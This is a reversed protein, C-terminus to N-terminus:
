PTIEDERRRGERATIALALAVAKAHRLYAYQGIESGGISVRWMHQRWEPRWVQMIDVNGAAYVGAIVRRLKPEM